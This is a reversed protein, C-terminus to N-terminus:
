YNLFIGKSKFLGIVKVDTGPVLGVNYRTLSPVKEGTSLKFTEDNSHYIKKYQTEIMNLEAQTRNIAALAGSINNTEIYRLATNYSKKDTYNDVYLKSNKRGKMVSIASMYLKLLSMKVRYNYQLSNINISDDGKLIDSRKGFFRTDAFQNNIDKNSDTGFKIPAIKFDMTGDGNPNLEGTENLGNELLFNLKSESLYIIKFNKNNM